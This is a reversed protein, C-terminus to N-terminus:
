MEPSICAYYYTSLFIFHSWSALFDVSSVFQRWLTNLRACGRKEEIEEEWDLVQGLEHPDACCTRRKWEGIDTM